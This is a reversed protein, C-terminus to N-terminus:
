AAEREAPTPPPRRSPPEAEAAAAPDAAPLGPPEAERLADPDVTGYARHAAHVLVLSFATLGFSIVIATLILAQPLPNATGAALAQAGPEVLPPARGLVRGAAFIAINVANSLLLLGVAVRLLTRALMLYTGGALLTGFALALLEDM